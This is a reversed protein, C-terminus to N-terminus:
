GLMRRINKLFDEINFPEKIFGIVNKYLNLDEIEDEDVILYAIRTKKMKEVCELIGKKPMSSEILVLDPNAKEIKNLCDNCTVATIANYGNKELIARITVRTDTDDDFILITKNM